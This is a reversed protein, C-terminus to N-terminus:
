AARTNRVGRALVRMVIGLLTDQEWPKAVFAFFGSKFAWYKFDDDACDASVAVIPIRRGQPHAHIARTAEYGNMGPMNLDMLVLDPQHEIALKLGERGCKASITQFGNRELTWVLLARYDANDDVVLILSKKDM